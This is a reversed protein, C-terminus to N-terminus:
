HKELALVQGGNLYTAIVVYKDTALIIDVPHVDHLRKKSSSAIKSMPFNKKGFNSFNATFEDISFNYGGGRRPNTEGTKTVEGSIKGKDSQEYIFLKSEVFNGKRFVEYTGKGHYSPADNTVDFEASFAYKSDDGNFWIALLAVYLM